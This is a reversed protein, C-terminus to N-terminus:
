AGVGEDAAPLLDRITNKRRTTLLELVDLRRVVLIKGDYQYPVDLEDSAGGNLMMPCEVDILDLTASVCSPSVLTLLLLLSRIQM